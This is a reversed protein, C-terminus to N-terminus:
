EDLGNSWRALIRAVAKRVHGDQDRALAELATKMHEDGYEGALQCAWLRLRPSQDEKWVEFLERWTEAGATARLSWAADRRVAQSPDSLSLRLVPAFDGARWFSALAGVAAQRTAAERSSLLALLDDHAEALGLHVV